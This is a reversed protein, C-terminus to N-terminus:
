RRAPPLLPRVEGALDTIQETLDRSAQREEFLEATVRLAALIVARNTDTTGGAGLVQRVIDDLYGAIARSEDAPRESRVTFEENLISVKVTHKTSM